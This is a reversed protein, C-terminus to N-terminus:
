ENSRTRADSVTDSSKVKDAAKHAADSLKSIRSPTGNRHEVRGHYEDEQGVVRVVWRFWKLPM